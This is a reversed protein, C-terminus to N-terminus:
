GNRRECKWWESLAGELDQHHMIVNIATNYIM